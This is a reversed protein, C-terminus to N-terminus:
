IRHRDVVHVAHSAASGIGRFAQLVEGRALPDHIGFRDCLANIDREPITLARGAGEAGLSILEGPLMILIHRYLVPFGFIEVIKGLGLQRVLWNM